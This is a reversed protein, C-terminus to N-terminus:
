KLLPLLNSYEDTWMRVEAYQGLKGAAAQVIPDALFRANDTLLMWQSATAARQPDTEANVEVTQWAFAEAANALVPALDVHRNSVHAAIVGGPALHRRYVAFAERTLLHTPIADGSFADLVLVDYHQPLEEEMSRRADGLVVEVDGRCDALYMFYRRALTEVDPNIEYFRYRDGPRAYAAISGVGLGIVGVHLNKHV